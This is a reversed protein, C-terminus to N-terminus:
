LMQSPAPTGIGVRNSAPNVHLTGSDFDLNSALAWAGGSPLSEPSVAAVSAARLAYPVATLPQRPALMVFAGSGAPARVAIQLWRAEGNFVSSGFDIPATFLGDTITVNLVVLPGAVQAPGTPADWLTVEFDAPGSYPAGGQKLQGQYTFATDLPTGGGFAAASAFCGFSVLITLLSHKM